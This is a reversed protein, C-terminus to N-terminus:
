RLPDGELYRYYINIFEPYKDLIKDVEKLYAEKFGANAQATLTVYKRESLLEKAHNRLDLYLMLGLLDPRTSIDTTVSPDLVALVIEELDKIKNQWVQTNPPTDYDEAWAPHEEKLEKIREDKWAKLQEAEKVRLNPFGYQIRYGEVEEILKGYKQWGLDSDVEKLRGDPLFDDALYEKYEREPGYIRLMEKGFERDITSSMQAAYVASSFEGVDYIDGLILRAYEPNDVLLRKFPKRAEEAEQTPPIGTKSTTKGKTVAFLEDGYQQIFLETGENSGYQEILERYAEIYPTLPSEVIPSAPSFYKVTSFLAWVVWAEHLIEEPRMPDVEGFRVRTDNYTIVDNYIKRKQGNYDGIFNIEEAVTRVM